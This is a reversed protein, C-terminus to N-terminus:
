GPTPGTLIIGRVSPTFTFKVRSPNNFYIRKSITEGPSLKGDGLLGSLNIYAKGDATTGDAGALTVGPNSIGDIVLWVPEGIETDSKNKITINTSFQGTRRDYSVLGSSVSVLNDVVPPETVNIVVEDPGSDVIGDNVILSIVHQGVPLDITPKVGNAEYDNGHVTWSWKYILEDGDEDYSGTGDLNVEAINDIWAYVTQDPGANAVPPHNNKIRFPVVGSWGVNGYVDVAKALVVYYGNLLQTSDFQFEWYSTNGDLLSPFETYSTPIGINKNPEGIYFFVADIVNLDNVEASFTITDNVKQESQPILINVEPGPVFQLNQSVSEVLLNLTTCITEPSTFWEDPLSAISSAIENMQENSYGFASLINIEIEPLGNELLNNRAQQIQEQTPIPLTASVPCWYNRLETALERIRESYLQTAGMQLTMYQPMGDIKAGDYRELSVRLAVTNAAFELAKEVAELQNPDIIQELEAIEPVQPFAIETYNFDPPDSAAVYYGEASIIFPVELLYLELAAPELGIAQLGEGAATTLSADISLGFSIGMLLRQAPTITVITRDSNTNDLIKAIYTYSIERQGNLATSIDDFLNYADIIGTPDFLDALIMVVRSSDWPPVWYWKHYAEFRCRTKVDAPIWININAPEYGCYYQMNTKVWENQSIDWIWAYCLSEPRLKWAGSDLYLNDHIDWDAHVWEKAENVTLNVIGGQWSESPTINVDVYYKTGMEAQEPANVTIDFTPPPTTTFSWVVGPTTGYANKEDIRWYYTTNPNMTGPNFTTGIRNGRFIGPSSTGFYIDHSTAGSGATWSLDTTLSVNTAENAPNPGTAQSAPPTTGITLTTSDSATFGEWGPAGSYLVGGQFELTIVHQGPSLGIGNESDTLYDYSLTVGHGDIVEDIVEVGDIYWYVHDVQFALVDESWSLGANLTISGGPSVEFPGGTYVTPLTPPTTGSVTFKVETYPGVGPDYQGNPPAGYFNRVPAFAWVIAVRIRYEGPTSPAQFTFNKRGTLVSRESQGNILRALETGPNWNGFANLYVIAGTYGQDIFVWQLDVTVQQNPSITAPIINVFDFGFPDATHTLDRGFPQIFQANYTLFYDEVAFAPSVMFLVVVLISLLAKKM